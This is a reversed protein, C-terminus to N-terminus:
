PDELEIGLKKEVDKIRKIWKNLHILNKINVRYKQFEGFNLGLDWGVYIDKKKPSTRLSTGGAVVTGAPITLHDSIACAGAILVNDELTVSGALGSQGAIIVHKGVKCNHAVHVMNDFKCGDGIETDTLAGRDVTCNSGIEVDDGIIVTGIQPIKNHIGEAFVFGFGDGGITSNGYIRFRKGIRVRDLIVTNMGVRAGEGLEVFNGIKAGDELIANDGVVSGEGICVYHGLSCNKGVKATPHVITTPSRFERPEQDPYLFQLVKALALEPHPVVLLARGGLEPVLDESVLLLSAQSQKAAQLNAKNAVFSLFNEGSHQLPAVAQIVLSEPQPCDRFSSGPFLSQIEIASSKKM